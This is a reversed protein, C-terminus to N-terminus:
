PIIIFAEYRHEKRQCACRSLTIQLNEFMGMYIESASRVPLPNMETVGLLASNIEEWKCRGSDRGNGYKNKEAPPLDNQVVFYETYYQMICELMLFM